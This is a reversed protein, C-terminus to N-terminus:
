NNEHNCIIKFTYLQNKLSFQIRPHNKELLSHMHCTERYLLSHHKGLTYSSTNLTHLSFTHFRKLCLYGNNKHNCITKFMHLQNKQSYQLCPHTQQTEFLIRCVVRQKVLVTNGWHAHSQTFNAPAFLLLPTALERYM